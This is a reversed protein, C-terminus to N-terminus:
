GGAGEASLESRGVDEPFGGCGRLPCFFATLYPILIFEDTLLIKKIV